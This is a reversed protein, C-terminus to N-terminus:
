DNQGEKEQKMQKASQKYEERLQKLLSSLYKEDMKSLPIEIYSNEVSDLGTHNIEIHFKAFGDYRIILESRLNNNKLCFVSEINNTYQSVNTNILKTEFEKQYRYFLPTIVSNMKNTFAIKFLKFNKQKNVQNDDEFWDDNKQIDNHLYQAIKDSQIASILSDNANKDLTEFSNLGIKALGARIPFDSGMKNQIKNLLDKTGNIDINSLIMYFKGGRAVAIIDDGRVSTKLILALRNTSVKNKIEDDLTLIVFIGKQISLSDSLDLFVEKLYKYQYLGTKKDIVGLQYLFKENRVQIEKSLKFKMCNVTKILMEYDDSDTLFYDYIGKDYADLVLKPNTDNLLLLIQCDPRLDKINVITKLTSENDTMEHVIVVSYLSDKVLKKYNKTDAVTIKDNCRLLVLKTSVEKVIEESDTILLINNNDFM